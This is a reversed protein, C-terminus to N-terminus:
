NRMNRIESSIVCALYVFATVADSGSRQLKVCCVIILCEWVSKWRFRERIVLVPFLQTTGTSEAIRWRYCKNRIWAATIDTSSPLVSLV